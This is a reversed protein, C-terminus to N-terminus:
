RMPGLPRPRASQFVEGRFANAGQWRGRLGGSIGWGFHHVKFHDCTTCKSTIPSVALALISKQLMATGAFILLYGFLNWRLLNPLLWQWLVLPMILLGTFAAWHSPSRRLLDHWNYSLSETWGAAPNRFRVQFRQWFEFDRWGM